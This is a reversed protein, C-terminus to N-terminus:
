DASAAVAADIASQLSQRYSRSTYTAGTISSIDASQAALVAEELQPLARQNISVSRRDGDPYRLVQVDTISGGLYTVAVQVVGWRNVFGDGQYTGDEVSGAPPAETATAGGPEGSLEPVTSTLTLQATASSGDEGTPEDAPGTVSGRDDSRAFQAALGLAAAVSLVLSAIKSAAAPPRRPVPHDNM